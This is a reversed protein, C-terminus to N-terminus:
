EFFFAAPEPRYKSVRWPLKLITRSFHRRFMPAQATVSSHRKIIDLPQRDLGNNSLTRVQIQPNGISQQWLTQRHHRCPTKLVLAIQDPMLDSLITSQITAAHAEIKPKASESTYDYRM